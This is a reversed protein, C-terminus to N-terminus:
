CVKLFQADAQVNYTKVKLSFSFKLTSAFKYKSFIRSIASYKSVQNQLSFKLTFYKIKSKDQVM